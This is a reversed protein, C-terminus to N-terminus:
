PAELRRAVYTALSFPGNPSGQVMRHEGRTITPPSFGTAVLMATMCADSIRWWTDVVGAKLDPMFEMVPTASEFNHDVVIVADRSLRSASHLAQFPDRLHLLVSGMVVVDFPGLAEPLAYIDGYFARASSGLLRHALWYANLLRERSARKVARAMELDFGSPGTWFPPIDWDSDEGIDFSVVTAGRKEMEFTLFGSAAGVDLARKGRFDFDGLYADVTDRLDWHDGVLGVGPLDMVHYFFCDQTSRVDRPKAFEVTVDTRPATRAVFGLM